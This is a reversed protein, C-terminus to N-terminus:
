SGGEAGSMMSRIFIKTRLSETVGNRQVTVELVVRRIDDCAAGTLPNALVGNDQDYSQVTFATVDSGSRGLIVFVDFPKDDVERVFLHM